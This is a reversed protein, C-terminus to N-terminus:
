VRLKCLIILRRPIDGVRITYLMKLHGVSQDQSQGTLWCQLSCLCGVPTPGRALM